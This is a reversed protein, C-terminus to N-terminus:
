KAELVKLAGEAAKRTGAPRAEDAALKRLNEIAGKDGKLKLIEVLTLVAQPETYTLLRERMAPLGADGLLYFGQLYQLAAPDRNAMAEDTAKAYLGVGEPHKRRALGFAANARAGTDATRHAVALLTDDIGEADSFALGHSALRVELMGAEPDELVKTLATTAEPSGSQALAHALAVRTDIGTADDEFKAVLLEVGREGARALLARLDKTAQEGTGQLIEGLAAGFREVGRMIEDDTPPTGPVTTPTGEAEKGDPQRFRELQKVLEENLALVESAKILAEDKQHRVEDVIERLADLDRELQGVKEQADALSKATASTRAPTPGDLAYQIGLTLLVGGAIGACLWVAKHMGMMIRTQSRARRPTAGRRELKVHYAM